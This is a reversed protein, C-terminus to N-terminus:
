PTPNEPSSPTLGIPQNADEEEIGSVLKAVRPPAEELLKDAKEFLRKRANYISRAASFDDATRKLSQTM